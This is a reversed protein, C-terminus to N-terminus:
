FSTNEFDTCRRGNGTAPLGFYKKWRSQRNNSRSACSRTHFVFAETAAVEKKREIKRRSKRQSENDAESSPIGLDTRSPLPSDIESAQLFIKWLGTRKNRGVFQDHWRWRRSLTCSHKFRTLARTALLQTKEGVYTERFHYGQNLSHLVMRRREEGEGSLGGHQKIFIRVRGRLPDVQREWKENM